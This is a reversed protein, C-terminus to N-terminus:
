YIKADSQNQFKEIKKMGTPIYPNIYTSIYNNLDNLEVDNLPLIVIQSTDEIHIGHGNL